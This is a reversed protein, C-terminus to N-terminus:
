LPKVILLPTRDFDANLAAVTWSEHFNVANENLHGGRVIQCPLAGSTANTDHALAGVPVESGDEATKVCLRLHGGSTTRGLIAGRTLNQGSALTGTGYDELGGVVLTDPQFTQESSRAIQEM